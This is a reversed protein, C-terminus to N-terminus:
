GSVADHSEENFFSHFLDTLSRGATGGKKIHAQLDEIKDLIEKATMLAGSVFLASNDM